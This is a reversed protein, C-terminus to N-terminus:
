QRTPGAGGSLFYWRLLRLNLVVNVAVMLGLVLSIIGGLIVVMKKLAALQEPTYGPMKDPLVNISDLILQPHGLIVVGYGVYMIGFFLAMLGVFRIGIPTEHSLPINSHRISAHLKLAAYCNLPISIQLVVFSIPLMQGSPVIILLGFLVILGWVIINIWSLITAITLTTKM